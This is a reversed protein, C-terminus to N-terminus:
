VAAWCFCCDYTACPNEPVSRKTLTQCPRVFRVFRFRVFRFRVLRATQRVPRVPVPRVPFRCLESWSGVLNFRFRVFLFRLRVSGSRVANPLSHIQLLDFQPSGAMFFSAKGAHQHWRQFRIPM